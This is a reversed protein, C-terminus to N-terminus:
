TADALDAPAVAPDVFGFLRVIQHIRQRLADPHHCTQAYDLTEPRSASRFLRVRGPEHRAMPVPSRGRVPDLITM